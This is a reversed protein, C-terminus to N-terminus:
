QKVIQIIDSSPYGLLHAAEELTPTGIYEWEFWEKFSDEAEGNSNYEKIWVTYCPYNSQAQKSKMREEEIEKDLQINLLKIQNKIKEVKTTDSKTFGLGKECCCPCNETHVNIMMKVNIKSKCKKCIAFPLPKSFIKEKVKKNVERINDELTRIEEKITKM